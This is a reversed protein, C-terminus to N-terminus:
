PSLIPQDEVHCSILPEGDLWEGVSRSVVLGGSRPGLPRGLVNSEFFPAVHTATLHQLYAQILQAQQETINYMAASSSPLSLAFATM